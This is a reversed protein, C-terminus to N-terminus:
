ETLDAIDVAISIKAIACKRLLNQTVKYKVLNEWTRPISFLQALPHYPNM